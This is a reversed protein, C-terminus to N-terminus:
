VAIVAAVRDVVNSVCHPPAVTDVKYQGPVFLRTGEHSGRLGFQGTAEGSAGTAILIGPLM